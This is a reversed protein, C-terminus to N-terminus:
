SGKKLEQFSFINEELRQNFPVQLRELGPIVYSEAHTAQDHAGQIGIGLRTSCYRCYPYYPKDSDVTARIKGYYAGNWVTEFGEDFFGLRQPWSHYCFRISGDTDIQCFQWPYFCRRAKGSEGLTEPLYLRIRFEKAKTKAKTFYQKALLPYNYLSEAFLSPNPANLYQIEVEEIGHKAAIEFIEPLEEINSKMVVYRIKVLPYSKRKRRKVSSLYEINKLITHYNAGRRIHELTNERAGDFSIVLRYLSQDDVMWNSVEQDLLMGNSTMSTMTDYSRALKLAERIHRYLLPEGGSCIYVRMASPFLKRAIREYREFPMWRQGSLSGYSICFTCRLNCAKTVTIDLDRPFSTPQPIRRLGQWLNKATNVIAKTNVWIM